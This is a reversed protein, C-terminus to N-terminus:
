EWGRGPFLGRGRDTLVYDRSGAEPMVMGGDELWAVVEQADEMSRELVDRLLDMSARGDQALVTLVDVALWEFEPARDRWHIPVGPASKPLVNWSRDRRRCTECKRTGNRARYTNSDYSHGRKCFRKSAKAATGPATRVNQSRTLLQLHDVNVCTPRHCLHDVTLGEPIAGHTLEYVRRHVLAKRQREVTMMPYGSSTAGTWMHCGSVPDVETFRAIRESDLQGNKSGRPRGIRRTTTPDAPHKTAGTGPQQRSRTM